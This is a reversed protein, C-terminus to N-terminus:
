RDSRPCRWRCAGSSASTACALSASSSSSPTSASRRSRVARSRSPRASQLNILPLSFRPLSLFPFPTLKLLQTKSQFFLRRRCDAAAVAALSFLARLGAATSIRRLGLSRADRQDMAVLLAHKFGEVIGFLCLRRWLRDRPPTASELAIFLKIPTEQEQRGREQKSTGDVARRSDLVSCESKKEAGSSYLVFTEAREAHLILLSLLALCRSSSCLSLLFGSARDAAAAARTSLGRERAGVGAAGTRQMLARARKM